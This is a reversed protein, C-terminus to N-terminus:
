RKRSSSTPTLHHLHLLDAEAAGARALAEAWASVLREYAADDVTAFIRDPGAPRDEYSPQFPVAAALPDSFQLAPSYDVASIDMGSYFSAAHTSAGPGGLSGTALTMRWGTEPLAGALARAVQASGRASLLLAGLARPRTATGAADAPRGSRCGSGAQM